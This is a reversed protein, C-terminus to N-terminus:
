MASCLHLPLLPSESSWPQMSWEKSLGGAHTHSVAYLVIGSDSVFFCLQAGCKGLCQQLDHTQM